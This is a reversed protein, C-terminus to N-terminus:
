GFPRPGVRARPREAPGARVGALQQIKLRWRRVPDSEQQAAITKRISVACDLAASASEFVVYVYFSDGDTKVAAGDFRAVERRVLTTWGGTGRETTQLV